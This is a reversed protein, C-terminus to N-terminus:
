LIHYSLGGLPLSRPLVPQEGAEFECLVGAEAELTSPNFTYVVM